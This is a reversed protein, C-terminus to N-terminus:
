RRWRLRGSWCTCRKSYGRADPSGLPLVSYAKYRDSRYLSAKPLRRLLRNVQPTDTNIGRIKRVSAPFASGAPKRESREADMIRISSLAKKLGWVLTTAENIEM